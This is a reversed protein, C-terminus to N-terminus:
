ANTKFYKNYIQEAMFLDFPTDVDVSEIDDLIYFSPQEGVIRALAEMKEKEIITIGYNLRLVDPLDQSNPVNDLSYNMPKNDMWLHNKIVDVSTLSDCDTELFQRIAKEHSEVSVFPSCVPALFIYDTDTTEAIHRHFESNNVESSAYYDDRKQTICGYKKGIALMEDSDSNVIIEDIGKVQQLLKIKMELLNSNGFPRINKNPVRQSGARVAIVATLKGQKM